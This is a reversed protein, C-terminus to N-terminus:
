NRKNFSTFTHKANKQHCQRMVNMLLSGDGMGADFIKLAPNKPKLNQVIPRLADAIKNKKM